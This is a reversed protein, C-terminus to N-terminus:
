AHQIYECLDVYSSTTNLHIVPIGKANPYGAELLLKEALKPDNM